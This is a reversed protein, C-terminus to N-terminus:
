HTSPQAANTDDSTPLTGGTTTIQAPANDEPVEQGSSRSVTPRVREALEHADAMRFVNELTSAAIKYTMSWDDLARNRLTLLAEAKRQEHVVSASLEKYREHLAAIERALNGTHIQNGIVTFTEDAAALSRAVNDAFSELEVGSRPTRGDLGFRKPLDSDVLALSARSTALTGALEVGCEDRRTRLEKDGSRERALALAAEYLRATKEDLTDRQLMIWWRWDEERYGTRAVLAVLIAKLNSDVASIVYRACKVRNETTKGVKNM